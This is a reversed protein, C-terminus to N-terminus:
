LTILHSACLHTVASRFHPLACRVVRHTNTQVSSFLFRSNVAHPMELTEIM